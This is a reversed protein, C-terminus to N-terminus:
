DEEVLWTELDDYDVGLIAALRSQLKRSPTKTFREIASIYNKAVGAKEALQAQTLDRYERYVKLPHEGAAKRETLEFPFAPEDKLEDALRILEADEAAEDNAIISAAESPFARKFADFSMVVSVPKMNDDRVVQIRDAPKVNKRVAVAHGNEQTRVASGSAKGSKRTETKFKATM